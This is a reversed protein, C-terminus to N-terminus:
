IVSCDRLSVTTTKFNLIGKDYVTCLSKFHALLKMRNTIIDWIICSILMNAHLSLNLLDATILYSLIQHTMEKDFFHTQMYEHFHNWPFRLFNIQTFLNIENLVHTIIKTIFHM